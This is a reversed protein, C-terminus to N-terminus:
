AKRTKAIRWNRKRFTNAARKAAKKTKYFTTVVNMPNSRTVAWKHSGRKRVSVKNDGVDVM